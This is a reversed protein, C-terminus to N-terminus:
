SMKSTILLICYEYIHLSTAAMVSCDRKELIEAVLCAFMVSSTEKGLNQPDSFLIEPTILPVCYEYIHLNTAVM